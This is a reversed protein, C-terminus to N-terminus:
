KKVFKQYVYEVLMAVKAQSPTEHSLAVTMLQAVSSLVGDILKSDTVTKLYKQLNSILTALNADEISSSINLVKNVENIAKKLEEESLDPFSKNILSMVVEPAVDLNTRIINVVSTATILAKQLPADVKDWAKEAADFIHVLWEFADGIKEFLRGFFGKEEAM